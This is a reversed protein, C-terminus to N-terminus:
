KSCDGVGFMCASQGLSPLLTSPDVSILWQTDHGSQLKTRVWAVNVGRWPTRVLAGYGWDHGNDRKQYATIASAGWENKRAGTESDYDWHSLGLLEVVGAINSDAGKSDKLSIGVSPHLLTLAYRPPRPFEGAAPQRSSKYIVANALLEWPLQVRANGGGFLYADWEAKVLAAEKSQQQWTPLAVNKQYFWDLEALVPYLALVEAASRRCGAECVGGPPQYAAYNSAPTVPDVVAAPQDAGILVLKLFSLGNQGNGFSAYTINWKYDTSWRYTRGPTSAGQLAPLARLRDAAASLGICVPLAPLQDCQYFTQRRRIETDLGALEQPTTSTDAVDPNCPNAPPTDAVDRILGLADAIKSGAPLKGLVYSKCAAEGAQLDAALAPKALACAAIVALAPLLRILAGRPM